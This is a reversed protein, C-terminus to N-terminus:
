ACLGPRSPLIKHFEVTNYYFVLICFSNPVSPFFSNETAELYTEKNFWVTQAHRIESNIQEIPNRVFTTM